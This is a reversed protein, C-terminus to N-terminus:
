NEIRKKIWNVMAETEQLTFNGSIQLEGNEIPGMMKPAMVIKKGFYIVLLAGQFKRSIFKLKERGEATLIMNILPSGNYGFEQNVEKIDSLYIYPKEHLILKEFNEGTFGESSKTLYFGSVTDKKIVDTQSFGIISNLLFLFYFILKKM